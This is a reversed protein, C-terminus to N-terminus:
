LSPNPSTDKRMEIDIRYLVNELNEYIDLNTFCLFTIGYAEIIKQREIDNTVADETFHSDGDVEIALKLQPCYFDVIFKGISYQRRFKFGNLGKGRLKLWLMMEAKPMEQRLNRRKLKESTKNFVKTM